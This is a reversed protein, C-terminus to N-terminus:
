VEPSLFSRSIIQVSIDGEDVGGRGLRPKFINISQIEFTWLVEIYTKIRRVKKLTVIVTM